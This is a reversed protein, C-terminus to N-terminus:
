MCAVFCCSKADWTLREEKSEERAIPAAPRQFEGLVSDAVNKEDASAVPDPTSSMASSMAIFYDDTKSETAAPAPAPSVNQSPENKSSADALWWETGTTSGFAPQNADAIQKLRRARWMMIEEGNTSLNDLSERM